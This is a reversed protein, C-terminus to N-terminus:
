RAEAAERFHRLNAQFDRSLAQEQNYPCFFVRMQDERLTLFARSSPLRGVLITASVCAPGWRGALPGIGCFIRHGRAERM